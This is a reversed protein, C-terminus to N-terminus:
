GRYQIQGPSKGWFDGYDLSTDMARYEALNAPTVVIGTGYFERHEHPEAAIDIEGLAVAHGLALGIGGTWNPDWAVTGAMEGAEIAFLAAEIGDIGTVPVAGAKGEQRLAELAGIAMGDNAAFVGKIDDGFRTLWAQMIEFARTENWDAPQFDLLQV